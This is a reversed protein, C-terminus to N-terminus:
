TPVRVAFPKRLRAERTSCTVVAAPTVHQSVRCVRSETRIFDFCNQDPTNAYLSFTIQFTIMNKFIFIFLLINYQLSVCRLSKLSYLSKNDFYIM